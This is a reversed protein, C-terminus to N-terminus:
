SKWSRDFIKECQRRVEHDTPLERSRDALATIYQGVRHDTPCHTVVHPAQQHCLLRPVLSRRDNAGNKDSQHERNIVRSGLWLLPGGVPLLSQVWGCSRDEWQCCHSSGAVAVTRGSAVIVPGLWLFPGGTSCSRDVLPHVLSPGGVPLLSYVWGRPHDPWRCCHSSGAM